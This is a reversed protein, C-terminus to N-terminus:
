SWKQSWRSCGPLCGAGPLLGCCSGLPLAMLNLMFYHSEGLILALLALGHLACCRTLSRNAAAPLGPSLRVPNATPHHSEGSLGYFLRGSAYMTRLTPAVAGSLLLLTCFVGGLLLAAATAPRLSASVAYGATATYWSVLILAVAHWDYGAYM